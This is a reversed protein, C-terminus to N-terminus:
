ANNSTGHKYKNVMTKKPKLGQGGILLSLLLLLLPSCCDLSGPLGSGDWGQRILSRRFSVSLDLLQGGKNRRQQGSGLATKIQGTQIEWRGLSLNVLVAVDDLLGRLGFRDWDVPSRVHRRHPGTQHHVSLLVEAGVVVERCVMMEFIHLFLTVEVVTVLFALEASAATLSLSSYRGVKVTGVFPAADFSPSGFLTISM